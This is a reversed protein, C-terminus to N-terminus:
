QVPPAGFAAGTVTAPRGSAAPPASSRPSAGTASLAEVRALADGIPPSTTANRRAAIVQELRSTGIILADLGAPSFVGERDRLLRLYGEMHHALLEADRVEVMASLGKISHVARFLEELTGPLMGGPAGPQADALLRRIAALHEDCEAFYDDIFGSLFDASSDTGAM